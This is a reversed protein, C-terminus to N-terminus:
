YKRKKTKNKKRKKTKKTKRYKKKGGTRHILRYQYLIQKIFQKIKKEPESERLLVDYSNNRHLIDLLTKEKNTLERGTEDSFFKYSTRHNGDGFVQFIIIMATLIFNKEEQRLNNISNNIILDNIQTYSNKGNWLMSPEDYALHVWYKLRNLNKSFQLERNNRLLMEETERGSLLRIDFNYDIYKKFKETYPVGIKEIITTYTENLTSDYEEKTEM